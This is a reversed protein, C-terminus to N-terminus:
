ALKEMQVSLAHIFKCLQTKIESGDIKQARENLEFFNKRPLKSTMRPLLSSFIFFIGNWIFRDHLFTLMNTAALCM